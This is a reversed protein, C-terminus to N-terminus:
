YYFQALDLRPHDDRTHMCAMIHSTIAILQRRAEASSPRPQGGYGRLRLGQPEALLLPRPQRGQVVKRLFIRGARRHTGAFARHSLTLPSPYATVALFPRLSRAPSLLSGLLLSALLRPGRASSEGRAPGAREVRSRLRSRTGGHQAGVRAGGAFDDCNSPGTLLRAPLPPRHM